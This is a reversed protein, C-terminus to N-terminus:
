DGQLFGEFEAPRMTREEGRERSVGSHRCQFLHSGKSCATRRADLPLSVYGCLSSQIIIKMRLDTSLHPALKVLSKTSRQRQTAGVALHSCQAASPRSQRLPKAYIRQRM